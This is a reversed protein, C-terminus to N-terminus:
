NLYLLNLDIGQQSIYDFVYNIHDGQSLSCQKSQEVIAQAITKCYCYGLNKVDNNERLYPKEAM